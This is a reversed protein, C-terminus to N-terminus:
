GLGSNNNDHKDPWNNNKSLNEVASKLCYALVVGIIETVAVQSLSEAIQIKDLWALIYSCWVWLFGNILCVWVVVKTTNWRKKSESPVPAAEEVIKEETTEDLVDPHEQFFETAKLRM